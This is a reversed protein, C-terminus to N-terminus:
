RCPHVRFQHAFRKARIGVNGHRGFGSRVVTPLEVGIPAVRVRLLDTPQDLICRGCSCCCRRAGGQVSGVAQDERAIIRKTRHEEPRRSVSFTPCGGSIQNAERALKRTAFAARERAGRQPEQHCVCLLAGVVDDHQVLQDIGPLKARLGFYVVAQMREWQARQHRRHVHVEM